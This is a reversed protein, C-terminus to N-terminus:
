RGGALAGLVFFAAVLPILVIVGAIQLVVKGVSPPEKAKEERDREADQSTQYKYGKKALCEELSKGLTESDLNKDLSEICQKRDKDFQKQNFDAKRWGVKNMSPGAYSVTVFVILILLILLGKM